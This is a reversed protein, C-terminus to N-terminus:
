SKRFQERQEPTMQNLTHHWLSRCVWDTEDEVLIEVRRTLHQGSMTTSEAPYIEAHTYRPLLPIM